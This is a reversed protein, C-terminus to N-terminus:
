QSIFGNHNFRNSKKGICHVSCLFNLINFIRLKKTYNTYAIHARIACTFASFFCLINLIRLKKTYHIHINSFCKFDITNQVSLNQVSIVNFHNHHHCCRRRHHHYSDLPHPLLDPPLPPAIVIIALYLPFKAKVKLNINVSILIQRYHHSIPSGVCYVLCWWSGSCEPDRLLLLYWRGYM